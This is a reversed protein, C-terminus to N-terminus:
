PLVTITKGQISFHYGSATLIQLAESAKSSRSIQGTFRHSDKGAEYVISVDYWRAMARMVTAIDAGAFAFLGNKWAMVDEVDANNILREKGNSDVGLQQGPRLVVSGIKVAGEILTTKMDPEDEYANVNFHTGIDEIESNRVHVVFPQRDRHAVEFYVEGSMEVTRRDGSFSTPFRISSGANLWVKTGDPLTVQYQGGRPTTITNYGEKAPSSERKYILQDNGNKVIANHGERAVIGNGATDLVIRSGNALTLVAKNGGPPLDSTLQAVKDKGPHGTKHLFLVMSGIILPILIAAAMRGWRRQPMSISEAVWDIRGMVAAKRDRAGDRLALGELINEPQIREEFRERNLPSVNLWQELEVQEEITLEGKIYKLTLVTLREKNGEM